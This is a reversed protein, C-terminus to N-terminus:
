PIHIYLRRVAQLVRAIWLEQPTRSSRHSALMPAPQVEVM